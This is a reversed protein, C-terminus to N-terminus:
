AHDFSHIFSERGSEEVMEDKYYYYGEYWWVEPSANQDCSKARDNRELVLM